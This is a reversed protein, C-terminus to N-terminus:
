TQSLTAAAALRRITAVGLGLERAVQRKPTGALLLRRAQRKKEELPKESPSAPKGPSPKAPRPSPRRKSSPLLELLSSHRGGLSSSIQRQLSEFCLFLLTPPTAGILAPMVGSPAHAINFIVSAATSLVVLGMSWRTDDGVISCRLASISFVVIAGDVMLPFLWAHSKNLAGSESAFHSLAEFSLVFSAIGLVAVLTVTLASIFRVSGSKKERESATDPSTEPTTPPPMACFIM